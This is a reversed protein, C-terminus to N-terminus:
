VSGTLMFCCNIFHTWCLLLALERAMQRNARFNLHLQLRVWFKYNIWTYQQYKFGEMKISVRPKFGFNMHFKALNIQSFIMTLIKLIDLSLFWKLDL